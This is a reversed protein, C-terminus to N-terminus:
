AVVPAAEQQFAAWSEELSRRMQSVRGATVGHKEAVESTSCGFALDKAIDKLHLGNAGSQCRRM